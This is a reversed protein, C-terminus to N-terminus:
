GRAGAGQRLQRWLEALVLPAHVNRELCGAGRDLEAALEEVREAPLRSQLGQLFELRDARAVEGPRQCSLLFVDRLYHSSLALFQELRLRDGSLEEALEWYVGDRGEVGAQLFAEVQRSAEDLEGAAVQRARQLSGEALRAAMGARRPEVGEQELQAALPGQGLRRLSLRQCRSLVTPLLRQPASSVLIFCAHPPPEELIKLLANAGAPHMCEAEFLLAVKWPGEVPAYSLERQLAMLHKKPINTRSRTLSLEQELYERAAPRVEAWVEDWPPSQRDEEEKKKQPLLVCLDPHALEAAKRCPPCDGCAEGGRARCNLGKALELALFRKGTGPPGSVLVAHPVRGQRLWAGALAKARDQGCIRALSL